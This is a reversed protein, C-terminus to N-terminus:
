TKKYLTSLSDNGSAFHPLFRSWSKTRTTEGTIEGLARLADDLEIGMFEPSQGFNAVVREIADLARRLSDKQHLRTILAQDPAIEIGGRILDVLARELEELGDGHLVSMEQEAVFEGDLAASDFHRGLDMKNLVLLVPTELMRIESLIRKDEADVTASADVMFVIVAAEAVAGQAREVGLREVEEETHRLGATDTLRIPIGDLNITEHLLDRTTGAHDTVIARSERLLANFLSSKGVNPRGAIAVSAGERLLRGADATSFCIRRAGM